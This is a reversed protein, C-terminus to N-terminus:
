WFADLDGDGTERAYEIRTCLEDLEAQVRPGGEEHNISRCLDGILREVEFEDFSLCEISKSSSVTLLAQKIQDFPYGYRLLLNRERPTLEIDIM